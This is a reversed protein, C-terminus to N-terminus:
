ASRGEFFEHAKAVATEVMEEVEEAMCLAMHQTLVTNPFQRLYAM